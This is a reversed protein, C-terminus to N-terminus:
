NFIEPHMIQPVHGAEGSFAFGTHPIYFEEITKRAQRIEEESIEREHHVKKKIFMTKMHHFIPQIIFGVAIVLVGALYANPNISMHYTSGRSDYNDLFVFIPAYETLACAFLFYSLICLCCMGTTFWFNMYSLFIVKINVIIVIVGFILESAVWMNDMKGNHKNGTYLCIAFVCVAVVALGQVSAELVWRWFVKTSFFKSEMGIRYYKPDNELKEYEVERDFMAYLCIPLAAFFINFFQYSWMNYLEQGSFASFFGYYFLPITILVNKYFNFCILVANRRYCERGHVFLLRKIYSFQAVAYDSARVAQQGELGAIGVGVHAACIMNVDNAGDGISLTRADNVKTKILKVIDAKQQPSVRCALVVDCQTALKLFSEIIDAKNIKLLSEGAIILAFKVNEINLTDLGRRIENKIDLTKHSQVTIRIIEDNLLGCSFGINIATEIKDGTLIWVKVGASKLFDITDPVGEQLKDEIATAGMLILQNELTDELEALREDKHELDLLADEYQIKWLKYESDKLEKYAIVLTRLGEKAYEELHNWTGSTIPSPLLRPFLISDAGKCFVKIKGDSMRAVVTMRKRDSTFEIVNLIRVPLVKAGVKIQVINEEREIFEVGFFRAANVLSLEDPSSSNYEIGSDKRQTIITHSCALHVFFDLNHKDDISFNKDVFDINPIKEEFSMRNDTGYSIGNITMKRFEMINCTLTGTKDSFVYNIQGLEENLNSSQVGAPMDHAEYYLGLDNSIFYAQVYRVMELTVLLSIPVFNTLLLMWTFFAYIFGIVGSSQDNKLELYVRTKDDSRSFWMSYYIAAFICLVVQLIFVYIIEKNMQIDLKSYKHRAKPSNMMIKTEHGTYIVLGVVWETNKLSSGRLLFQKYELPVSKIPMNLIGEFHYIIPNADPCKINGKFEDLRAEFEFYVQTDKSAIKHKLNTEGDLNKTEIYCIGKSDSSSILILDAPFYENQRVKVFDGVQLDAWVTKVWDRSIRKLTICGNEDKDSQKRKLDELLDKIASFVVVIFLPFLLNPIGESVSISPISQLISVMLFYINALKKFQQIISKPIFNLCTYKSTCIKNSAFTVPFRQPFHLDRQKAVLTTTRRENEREILYKKM